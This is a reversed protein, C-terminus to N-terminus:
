KNGKLGEFIAKYKYYLEQIIAQFADNVREGTKASTLYYGLLNRKKVFKLIKANNFPDVLPKLLLKVGLGLLSALNKGKKSAKQKKRLDDLEKQWSARNKNLRLIPSELKKELNRYKTKFHYGQNSISVSVKRFPIYVLNIGMEEATLKIGMEDTDAHEYMIAISM